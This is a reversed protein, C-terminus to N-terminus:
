FLLIAHLYEFACSTCFIVVGFFFCLAMILVRGSLPIFLDHITGHAGDQGVDAFSTFCCFSIGFVFGPTTGHASGEHPLQEPPSQSSYPTSQAMRIFILWFKIFIFTFSFFLRQAM